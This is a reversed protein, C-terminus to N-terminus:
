PKGYQQTAAEYERDAEKKKATARAVFRVGISELWYAGPYRLEGIHSYSKASLLKDKIRWYVLKRLVNKMEETAQSWIESYSGRYAERDIPTGDPYNKGLYQIYRDIEVRADCASAYQDIVAVYPIEADSDVCELNFNGYFSSDPANACPRREYETFRIGVSKISAVNGNAEKRDGLLKIFLVPNRSVFHGKCVAYLEFPTLKTRRIHNNEEESNTDIEPWFETLYAMVKEHQIDFPLTYSQIKNLREPKKPASPLISDENRKKGLAKEYDSM